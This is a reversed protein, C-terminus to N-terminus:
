RSRLLQQERVMRAIAAAVTRHGFANWHGDNALHTPAKQRAQELAPAVDLQLIDPEDELARALWPVGEHLVVLRSMTRRAEAAMRRYLELVLRQGSQRDEATWEPQRWEVVHKQLSRYLESTSELFGLPVPVNTLQLHEGTEFRPKARGYVWDSLTEDVDNGWFQVLVIDPAFATGLQPAREKLLLYQQDTGYGSVGLNWVPVELQTALQRCFTEDGEVGWGFTFSDGLAAIRPAVEPLDPQERFGAAGIRVEVDFSETRHRAQADARYSWGLLEDHVVYASNTTPGFHMTRLGRWAFEGVVGAVLLSASALLWKAKRGVRRTGPTREQLRQESGSVMGTM